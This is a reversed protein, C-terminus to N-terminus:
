RLGGAFQIAAMRTTKRFVVRDTQHRADLPGSSSDSYYLLLVRNADLALGTTYAGDEQYHDLVHRQGFTRGNDTSVYAVVLKRERDRGTLLLTDEDLRTLFPRQLTCGLMDYINERESWTKGGDHSWLRFIAPTYDQGTQRRARLLCLITGPETEMFAVEDGYDEKPSTLRSLM